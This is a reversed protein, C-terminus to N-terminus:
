LRRPQTTESTLQARARRTQAKDKKRDVENVNESEGDNEAEARKAETM